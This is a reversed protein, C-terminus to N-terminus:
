TGGHGDGQSFRAAQKWPLGHEKLACPEGLAVAVAARLVRERRRPDSCRGAAERLLNAAAPRDDGLGVLMDFTVLQSELSDDPVDCLTQAISEMPGPEASM